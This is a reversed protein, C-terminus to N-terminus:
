TQYSCNKDSTKDKRINIAINTGLEAVNEHNKAECAADKRITTPQIM